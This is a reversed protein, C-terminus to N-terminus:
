PEEGFDQRLIAKIQEELPALHEVATNWVLEPKVSFYGHALWNRM